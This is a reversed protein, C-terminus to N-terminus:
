WGNLEEADILVDYDWFLNKMELILMHIPVDKPVKVSYTAYLSDGSLKRIKKKAVWSDAFGYNKLAAHFLKDIEIGSLPDRNQPQENKDALKSVVINVILLLIVISFLAITIKKLLSNNM